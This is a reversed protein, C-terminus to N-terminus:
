NQSRSKQLPCIATLEFIPSGSASREIEEGGLTFDGLHYLTDNPCVTQNWNAVLANDMEVLSTYTRDFYRIVNAHGFCTDSTLWISM